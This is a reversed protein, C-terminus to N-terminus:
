TVAECMRMRPRLHKHWLCVPTLASNMKERRLSPIGKEQFWGDYDGDSIAVLQGAAAPDLVLDTKWPERSTLLAEQKNLHSNLVRRSGHESRKWASNLVEMAFIGCKCFRTVILKQIAAHNQPRNDWRWKYNRHGQPETTKPAFSTCTLCMCNFGQNQLCRRIKQNQSLKLSTQESRVWTVLNRNNPIYKTRPFTQWTFFIFVKLLSSSPKFLM